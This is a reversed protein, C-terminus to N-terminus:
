AVGSVALFCDAAKGTVLAEAAGRCYHQPEEPDGRAAIAEIRPLRGIQAPSNLRIGADGGVGDGGPRKKLEQPRFAGGHPAM